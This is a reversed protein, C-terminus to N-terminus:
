KAVIDNLKQMISNIKAEEFGHAMLGEELSEFTAAACGLCHLGAESLVSALEEQKEPFRDFLEGFSMNRTIKANM